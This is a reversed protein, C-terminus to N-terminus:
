ELGALWATSRAPVSALADDTTWWHISSDPPRVDRLATVGRCPIALLDDIRLDSPVRPLEIASAHGDGFQYDDEIVAPIVAAATHVCPTGCISVLRLLSVGSVVIDTTTPTTLEPWCDYDIPDPISRRLTPLLQTLTM